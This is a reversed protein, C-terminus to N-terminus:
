LIFFVVAAVFLAALIATGILVRRADILAVNKSDPPPALLTDEPEIRNAAVADAM